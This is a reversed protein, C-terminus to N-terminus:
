FKTHIQLLDTSLMGRHLACLFFQTPGRTAVFTELPHSYNQDHCLSCKAFIQLLDTSLEGRYLGCLLFLLQGGLPWFHLQFTTFVYQPRFCPGIFIQQSNPFSQNFVLPQIACIQGGLPWFHFQLAGSILWCRVRPGLFIHHSKSFLDTSFEPTPLHECSVFSNPGRTAVFPIAHPWFDTPTQVKTWRMNQHSYSSFQYFVRQLACLFFVHTRSTAVFLVVSHGFNIPMQVKTCSVHARFKFIIPCSSGITSHVCYIQTATAAYCHCTCLIESEQTPICYDAMKLKTYLFSQLFCVASLFFFISAKGSKM